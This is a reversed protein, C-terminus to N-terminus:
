LATSRDSGDGVTFNRGIRPLARRPGALPRDLRALCAKAAQDPNAPDAGLVEVCAQAYGWVVAARSGVTIWVLINVDGSEWAAGAHGAALRTKGAGGVGTLM